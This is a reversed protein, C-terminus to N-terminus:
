RGTHYCHQIAWPAPCKSKTTPQRRTHRNIGWCSDRHFGHHFRFGASLLFTIFLLKDKSNFLGEHSLPTFVKYSKIYYKCFLSQFFWEWWGWSFSCSLTPCSDAKGCCWPDAFSPFVLWSFSSFVIILSFCMPVSLIYIAKNDVFGM